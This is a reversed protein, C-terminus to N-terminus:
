QTAGLPRGLTISLLGDDITFTKQLDGRLDPPLGLGGRPLGVKTDTSQGALAVQVRGAVTNALEGVLAALDSPSAEGQGMMSYWDEVVPRSVQMCMVRCFPHVLEISSWISDDGLTAGADAVSPFAEVFFMEEILTPVLEEIYGLATAEIETM